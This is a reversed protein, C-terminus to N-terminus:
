LVVGSLSGAINKLKARATDDILRNDFSLRIGGILDPVVGCTLEIKKGTHAELRATLTERQADTLPVASEVKARIIGHREFYLREYETFCGPIEYATGREVLMKVFNALYPHVRGDLAESVLAVREAKPLEPTTLLHLYREDLIGGLMRTEALLQEEVQEGEDLALEYLGGGYEKVIEKM